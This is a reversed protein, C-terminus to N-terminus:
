YQFVLILTHCVSITIVIQKKQKSLSFNLRMTHASKKLSLRFSSSVTDWIAFCIECMLKM